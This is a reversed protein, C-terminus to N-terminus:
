VRISSCNGEDNKKSNENSKKNIKYFETIIEVEADSDDVLESSDISDQSLNEYDNEESSNYDCPILSIISFNGTSSKSLNVNSLNKNSM